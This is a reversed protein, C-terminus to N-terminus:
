KDASGEVEGLGVTAGDVDVLVEVVAAGGEVTKRSPHELSRGFRAEPEGEGAQSVDVM